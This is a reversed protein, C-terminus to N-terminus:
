LSSYLNTHPQACVVDGQQLYSHEVTSLGQRSQPIFSAATSTM